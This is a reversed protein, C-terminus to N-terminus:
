STLMQFQKPHLGKMSSNTEGQNWNRWISSWNRELERRNQGVLRIRQSILELPSLTKWRKWKVKIIIVLCSFLAKCLRIFSAILSQFIIFFLHHYYIKIESSWNTWKRMLEQKQIGNLWSSVEADKIANFGKTWADDKTMEAIIQKKFAETMKHFDKSLIELM